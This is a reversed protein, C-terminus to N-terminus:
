ESDGDEDRIKKEAQNYAQSSTPPVSKVLYNYREHLSKVELELEKDEMSSYLTEFLIRADHKLVIFSKAANLHDFYNKMPNLITSVATIISSTAAIWSWIPNAWQAFPIGNIQLVAFTTLVAPILQFILSLKENKAALIHHAEANFRCYKYITRSENILQRRMM